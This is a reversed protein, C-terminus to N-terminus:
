RGAAKSGSPKNDDRADILIISEHGPLGLEKLIRNVKALESESFYIIVKYATEADSAKQYIEAQHQLNRALSSNSALKMEVVTKDAAGLSIKFDVPGRGDNVERSVDLSTGYWVLRFLIQLDRERRIPEGKNYFIEHGGKNEIVDKLFEIRRRAEVATKLPVSYFDTGTLAHILSKAGEVFFASSAEVKETSRKEALDGTDEKQKIFYDFIEPFKLATKSIAAKREVTKADKPLISRFYNDLQERLEQSGIATPIDDFERYFDEKNIWTEDQTLIDRPTLLVYDEGYHPLEFVITQWSETEYNFRAKEVACRRILKPDIHRRAFEQTYEALFGKILNTTFDSITDRGVGSKILCLKELHSGRTIQEHGFNTFIAGLNGDLASAFDGGLGRGANSTQSFGLWTQKVEKFYYWARLLGPTLTRALSRDRLFRLYTIIEDHLRRYEAKKSHFLLFPDVFLPLDVLLSINFAGYDELNEESVEFIDSFYLNTNDAKDPM